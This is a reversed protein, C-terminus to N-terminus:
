ITYRYYVATAYHMHIIVTLKFVTRMCKDQQLQFNHYQVSYMTCHTLSEYSFGIKDKKVILLLYIYLIFIVYYM